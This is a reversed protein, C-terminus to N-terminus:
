LMVAWNGKSDGLIINYHALATVRTHAHVVVCSAGALPQLISKSLLLLEIHECVCFQLHCIYLM